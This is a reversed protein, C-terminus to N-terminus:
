PQRSVGITLMARPAATFAVGRDKAIMLQDLETEDARLLVARALPQDCVWRGEVPTSRANWCRLVLGGDLGPKIASAVLGDGELALRRAAALDGALEAGHPRGLNEECIPFTRHDEV